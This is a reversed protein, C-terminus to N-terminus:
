IREAVRLRASRARPNSKLEEESARIPRRNALRVRAPHELAAEPEHIPDVRDKSEDRMFRKVIRDELSHFSIVCLRAGSRLVAVAAYIGRKVNALEDNTAIRLAM